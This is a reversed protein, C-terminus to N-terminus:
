YGGRLPNFTGPPLRQHALNNPETLYTLGGPEPLSVDSCFVPRHVRRRLAPVGPFCSISPFWHQIASPFCSRKCFFSNRKECFGDMRKKKRCLGGITLKFFPKGATKFGVNPSIRPLRFVAIFPCNVEGSKGCLSHLESVAIKLGSTSRHGKIM